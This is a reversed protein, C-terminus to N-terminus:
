GAMSNKSTPPQNADYIVPNNMSITECFPWPMHAGEGMYPTDPLNQGFLLWWCWINWKLVITDHWQGRGMNSQSLNPVNFNLNIWCLPRLTKVVGYIGHAFKGFFHQIKCFKAQVGCCHGKTLSHGLWRIRLPLFNIQMMFFPNNMSITECFPWTM